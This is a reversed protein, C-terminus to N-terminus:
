NNKEGTGTRNQAIKVGVATKVRPQEINQENSSKARKSVMKANKLNWCEPINYPNHGNYFHDECGCCDKKTVKMFDCIRLRGVSRM